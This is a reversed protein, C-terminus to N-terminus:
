DTVSLYPLLKAITKKDLARINGIDETATFSGHQFRYAVIAKAASKSVYPHNALERETIKNLNLKKLPVSNDLYTVNTLSLITSSDLGYVERLQDIQHFGGLLNRYRIIRQARVPGIGKVAILQSSDATNLHIRSLVNKAESVEKIKETSAVTQVAIKQAKEPLAIYTFLQRFHASDIGYVKLLDNKERFSGGKERYRVIRAAIAPSFGLSVLDEASAKNPDFSFFQIDEADAPKKDRGEVNEWHAVLSDLTAKERAFERVEMNDFIEIIPSSFLVLATLPLLILFGNTERRSFGLVVRIWTRLKDM